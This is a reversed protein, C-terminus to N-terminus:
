KGEKKVLKVFKAIVEDTQDAVKGEIAMEEKVKSIAEKGYEKQLAKLEEAKAERSREKVEEKKEKVEETKENFKEKVKEIVNLEKVVKEFDTDSIDMMKGEIKLSKKVDAIRPKGFKEVLMSVENERPNEPQVTQGEVKFEGLASGKNEQKPADNDEGGVVIGFVMRFAYREGFTLASGNKQVLSMGADTEIPSRFISSNSHGGVHHATCTVIQCAEKYETNFSYSFGYKALFPRVQIVIDEIPAFGYAIKVGTKTKFDAKGEKSIIPCESQFGSLAINFDEKAKEQKLQTRMVLLRELTEIPVGKEIAMAILNEASNDQRVALGENKKVVIETDVAKTKNM